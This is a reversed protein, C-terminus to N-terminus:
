FTKELVVYQEKLGCLTGSSKLGDQPAQRRGLTSDPVLLQGMFRLSTTMKSKMRECRAAWVSDGGPPDTLRAARCSSARDSIGSHSTQVSTLSLKVLGTPPLSHEWTPLAPQTHTHARRHAPPRTNSKWLREWTAYRPLGSPPSLQLHLLLRLLSNVPAAASWGFHRRGRLSVPSASRCRDAPRPQGSSGREAGVCVCEPEAPLSAPVLSCDTVQSRHVPLM